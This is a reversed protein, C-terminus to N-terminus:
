VKSRITLAIKKLHENGSIISKMKKRIKSESSVSLSVQVGLTPNDFLYAPGNANLLSIVETSFKNIYSVHKEAIYHNAHLLKTKTAKRFMSGTRVRYYFLVEPIVVGNYGHRMLNMVSEYDELGFKLAPDNLGAEIFAFRKYVLGSSNIPNHVLSYPPQPTFAPWVKDSNGFYQVWSGAFFVNSKAKLAAIAKEFYQPHVKDDADLFALFEGKAERAGSNRTEALGLNLKHNIININYRGALEALKMQSEDDTSGDNVIIIEVNAWSSNLVSDIAEQIYQGMNFYPIVVSLLNSVGESKGGNINKEQHLFPFLGTHRNSNMTKEIADTKRTAIKDPSYLENVAKRANLSIQFMEADTLALIQLLKNEFSGVEDHDFLFGSVGDIIMERQGGQISALIVKGLSMIEMIAYPLNDITSPFIVVHADNLALSISARSIKGELIILRKSICEEYKREVCQGMTLGEPHYVISTSGILHIPHPFGADWMSKFYELMKFTGKQPSLKGYSVIKNRSIKKSSASDAYFPNPIIELPVENIDIANRILDAIFHSPAILLDAAKISQKEMECTWFEPFSFTSVDNYELYVFAPSHLTVVIPTDAVFPFGLHKFQTLYYAIGLYDQAEIIDPSGEKESLLKVMQAFAYSLRATYGLSETLDNRDPNFRVVRTPGDYSSSYDKVAQDSVLVSVFFGVEALLRATFKCYTSIGGGEMPPFETTLLWYTRQGAHEQDIVSSAIDKM